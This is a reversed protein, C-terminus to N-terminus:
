LPAETHTFGVIAMMSVPPFWKDKPPDAREDPDLSAYPGDADRSKFPTLRFQGGGATYGGLKFARGYPTLGPFDTHCTGCPQGTQRAYSPLAEAPRTFGIMTIAALVVGTGLAVMVKFVRNGDRM